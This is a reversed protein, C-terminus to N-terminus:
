ELAELLNHIATWQRTVLTCSRASRLYEDLTRFIVDSGGEWAPTPDPQGAM